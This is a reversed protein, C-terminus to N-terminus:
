KWASIVVSGVFFLAAAATWAPAVERLRALSDRWDVSWLLAGVLVLAVAAKVLILGRKV